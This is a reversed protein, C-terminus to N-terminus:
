SHVLIEWHPSTGKLMSFVIILFRCCIEWGSLTPEVFTELNRAGSTTFAGMSARACARFLCVLITKWIECSTFAELINYCNSTYREWLAAWFIQLIRLVKPIIKGNTLTQAFINHHVHQQDKLQWKWIMRAKVDEQSSASYEYISLRLRWPIAVSPIEANGKLPCLECTSWGEKSRSWM